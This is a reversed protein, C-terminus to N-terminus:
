NIIDTSIQERNTNIRLQENRGTPIEISAAEQRGIVFKGAHELTMVRDQQGRFYPSNFTLPWLPPFSCSGTSTNVYEREM